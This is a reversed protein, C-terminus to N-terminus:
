RSGRGAVIRNALDDSFPELWRAGAAGHEYVRRVGVEGAFRTVEVVETVRRSGDRLRALHVVVDLASALQERVAVHPLGLEAMLALTEIRRLADTASNAHVTTMSGDHGSNLAQLM